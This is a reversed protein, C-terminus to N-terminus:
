KQLHDLLDICSASFYAISIILSIILIMFMKPKKKGDEEDEYSLFKLNPYLFYLIAFSIFFIKVTDYQIESTLEISKEVDINMGTFNKFLSGLVSDNRSEYMLPYVKGVPNMNYSHPIETLLPPKYSQDIFDNFQLSKPMVPEPKFNSYEILSDDPLFSDISPKPTKKESLKLLDDLSLFVSDSSNQPNNFELASFKNM